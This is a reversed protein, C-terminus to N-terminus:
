KPWVVSSPWLVPQRVAVALFQGFEHPQTKRNDIALMGGTHNAVTALLQANNKPGIVFSSVSIQQKVLLKLLHELQGGAMLNALSVGDGIYRDGALDDFTVTVPMPGVGGGGNNGSGDCSGHDHCGNPDPPNALAPAAAFGLALGLAAVMLTKMAKREVVLRFM